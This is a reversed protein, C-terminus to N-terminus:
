LGLTAAVAAQAPMVAAGILVASCFLAGTASVVADRFSSFSVSM